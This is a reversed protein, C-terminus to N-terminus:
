RGIKQFVIQINKYPVWNCGYRLISVDRDGNLIPFRYIIGNLEIIYWLPTVNNCVVFSYPPIASNKSKM